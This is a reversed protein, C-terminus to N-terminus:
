NYKSMKRVFNEAPVFFFRMGFKVVIMVSPLYLFRVSNVQINEFIFSILCIKLVFDTRIAMEQFWNIFSWSISYKGMQKSVSPVRLQAIMEFFRVCYMQTYLRSPNSFNLLHGFPLLYDYDAFEALWKCSM